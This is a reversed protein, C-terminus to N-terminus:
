TPPGIGMGVLRACIRACLLVAEDRTLNVTMPFGWKEDDDGVSCVIDIGYKEVDNNSGQVLVDGVKPLGGGRRFEAM